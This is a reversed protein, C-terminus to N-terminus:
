RLWAGRKIEAPAKTAPDPETLIYRVRENESGAAYLDLYEGILRESLGTSVRIEGMSLGHVHLRVVRQFDSCYQDIARISHWRRQKIQSFTYGALWDTVIRGKHSTGKGIDKIQGRTPV